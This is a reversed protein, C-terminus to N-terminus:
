NKQTREAINKFELKSVVENEKDLLYLFNGKSELRGLKAGYDMEHAPCSQILQRISKDKHEIKWFLDVKDLQHEVQISYTTSQIKKRKWEWSNEYDNKEIENVVDEILSYPISLELFVRRAGKILAGLLMKKQELPSLTEYSSFDFPVQVTYAGLLNIIAPHSITEVCEVIIKWCDKTVVPKFLREVMSTMCKSEYVFARRLDKWNQRYDEIRAEEYTLAASDMLEEIRQQNEVYPKDLEFYQLKMNTTEYNKRTSLNLRLDLDLTQARGESKGMTTTDRRAISSEKIMWFRRLYALFVDKLIL